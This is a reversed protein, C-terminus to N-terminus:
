PEIATIEGLMTPHIGCRYAYRGADRFTVSHEGGQSVPGSSGPRGGEMVISHPADDHNTWRVPVGVRVSLSRPEFAFDRIDIGIPEPAQERAPPPATWMSLVIEVRDGGAPIRGPLPDPRNTFPTFVLDSARMQDHCNMCRAVPDAITVPQYGQDASTRSM